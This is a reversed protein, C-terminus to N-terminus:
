TEGSRARLVSTRLFRRPGRASSPSRKSAAPTAAGATRTRVREPSVGTSSRRRMVRRGGSIRMVVGSLRLM